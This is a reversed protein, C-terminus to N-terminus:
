EGLTAQIVHYCCNLCISGVNDVTIIIDPDFFLGCGICCENEDSDDYKVDTAPGGIPRDELAGKETLLEILEDRTIM